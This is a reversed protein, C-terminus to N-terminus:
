LNLEKIIYEKKFFLRNEPIDDLITQKLNEICAERRKTSEEVNRIVMEDFLKNFLKKEDFPVNINFSVTRVRGTGNCYGCPYNIKDFDRGRGIDKTLEGSGECSKCITIEDM